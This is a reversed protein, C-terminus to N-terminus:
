GVRPQTCSAQLEKPKRTTAKNVNQSFRLRLTPTIRIKPFHSHIVLGPSRYAFWSSDRVPRFGFQNTKPSGRVSRLQGNCFSGELAMNVNTFQFGPTAAQPVQM